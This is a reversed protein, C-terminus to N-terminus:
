RAPRWGASAGDPFHKFGHLVSAQVASIGFILTSVLVLRMLIVTEAQQAPDFGPAILTRVLWPAFIGALLGLVGVVLVVLRRRWRAAPSSPSCCIPCNLPQM